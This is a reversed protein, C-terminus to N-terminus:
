ASQEEIIRLDSLKGDKFHGIIKGTTLKLRLQESVSQVMKKVAAERETDEPAASVRLPPDTSRVTRERMVIFAVGKLAEPDLALQIECQGYYGPQASKSLERVIREAPIALEGQSSSM